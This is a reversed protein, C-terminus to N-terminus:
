SERLAKATPLKDLKRTNGVLAKLEKYSTKCTITM